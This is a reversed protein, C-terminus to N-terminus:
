PTRVGIRFYTRAAANTKYTTHLSGDGLINSAVVSWNHLQLDTASEIHYVRGTTTPFTLRYVAQTGPDTIAVWLFSAPDFPDTGAIEEDEDHAGDNDDDPDAPNSLGDGDSDPLLTFVRSANNDLFPDSVAGFVFASNTAIGPPSSVVAVEMTVTVMAGAPFSPFFYYHNQNIVNNPPPMSQLLQMGAPLGDFMTVSPITSTSHNAVTITYTLHSGTILNTSSVTKIVSLVDARSFTATLARAQDMTLMLPNQNPTTVDGSWGAFTQGNSPTATLVVNSGEAYWGSGPTVDGNGSVAVDLRHELDWHFTIVTNNTIDFLGTKIGPGSAPQNGSRTWGTCVGRTQLNSIIGNTLYVTVNSTVDLLNTGSPASFSGIERSNNAWWSVDDDNRAVALLDPDGDSDLDAGIASSAGNFNGDVLIGNFHDWWIVDRALYASGIIEATGDCDLDIAQFSSAGNYLGTMAHEIWNTGTNEWWALTDGLYAAGLVDMDGDADLDGAHVHFAGDFSTNLPHELWTTGTGDLNEWWAIDDDTWAAGLVDLDGDGDLDEAHVANVGAFTNDVTHRTWTAGSGDLNEWWAIENDSFAGGLIDLDGDGDIDAAKVSRAGNFSGSVNFEVWNSGTGGFNMWWAVADGDRAAAIVDPHGDRNIDAADVSFAGNFNNIIHHAAWNTGAGSLNEWWLVDDAIDAAGVIDIDGDGDFDAAAVSRAGDFGGSIRNENGFATTETRMFSTGFANSVIVELLPPSFIATVARAQDMTLLLPNDNTRSSPVDGAWGIFFSRPQPMATLTVNTGDEYWGEAPNVTGGGVTALDLKFEADWHFTIAANNTLKFRGMTPGTGTAPDSGTRTWGTLSGRATANSFSAEPVYCALNSSAVLGNTSSVPQFTALLRSNNRWWSVDDDNRAAALLDFDGDGDLDAPEASSAGNFSGDVLRAFLNSGDGDLNDWWLVDRALYATGIAESVGDHDLDVPLISSAGNFTGTVIHANWVSGTEGPNEWRFFTDGIYASGFLDLHGDGHIDGSHISFAGNVANTLPIKQWSTGAGDLNRWWAAQNDTWAAGLVDVDGDDDLDAVDVYTAGAFAPDIMRQNWSTGTGDLNEWWAVENDSFAGGVIDNDGDGDLDAA